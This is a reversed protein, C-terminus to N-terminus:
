LVAHAEHQGEQEKKLEIGDDPGGQTKLPFMGRALFARHGLLRGRGFAREHGGSGLSLIPTTDRLKAGLRSRYNGLNVPVEM